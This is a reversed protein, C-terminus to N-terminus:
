WSLFPSYGGKEAERGNDRSAGPRVNLIGTGSEHNDAM